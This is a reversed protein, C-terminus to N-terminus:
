ELYNLLILACHPSFIGSLRQLHERFFEPDEKLLEARSRQYLLHKAPYEKGRSGDGRSTRTGGGVIEACLTEPTMLWM